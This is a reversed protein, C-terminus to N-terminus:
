KQSENKGKKDKKRSPCVTYERALHSWTSDTMRFRNYPLVDTRLRQQFNMKPVDEFKPQVSEVTIKCEGRRALLVSCSRVRWEHFMCAVESVGSPCAAWVHVCHALRHALAAAPNPFMEERFKPLPNHGGLQSTDATRYTIPTPSVFSPPVKLTLLREDIRL